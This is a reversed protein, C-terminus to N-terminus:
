PQAVANTRDLLWRRKELIRDTDRDLATLVREAPVGGRIAAESHEILRSM